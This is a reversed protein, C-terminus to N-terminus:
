PNWSGKAARGGCACVGRACRAEARGFCRPLGASWARSREREPGHDAGIPHLGGPPLDSTLLSCSGCRDTGPTCRRRSPGPGHICRRRSRACMCVPLRCRTRRCRGHGNRARDTLWVRSSVTVRPCASMRRSTRVPMDRRPARRDGLCYTAVASEQSSSLVGPTV